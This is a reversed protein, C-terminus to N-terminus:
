DSDKNKPQRAQTDKLMKVIEGAVEEFVDKWAGVTYLGGAAISRRVPLVALQKGTETDVVTCEVGLVTGGAGPLMWRAFANGPAYETITTNLSYRGPTAFVSSNKLAVQLADSMAAALDIKEDKDGFKYGSLDKTEGIDFPGVPSVADAGPLPTYVAKTSCGASMGAIAMLLVMLIIKRRIDETM